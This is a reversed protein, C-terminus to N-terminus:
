SENETAGSPPATLPRLRVHRRRDFAPPGYVRNTQLDHDTVDPYRAPLQTCWEDGSESDLDVIWLNTGIEDAAPSRGLLFDASVHLADAIIALVSAPPECEGHEWRCLTRASTNTQEALKQQSVGRFKRVWRLRAGICAKPDNPDYDHLRLRM